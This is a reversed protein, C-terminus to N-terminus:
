FSRNVVGAALVLNPKIFSVHLMSQSNTTFTRPVIAHPAFVSEDTVDLVCVQNSGVALSLFTGDPSWSMSHVEGELKVQKLMRETNTDFLLLEGKSTAAAVFRGSPDAAVRDVPQICSFQRAASANGTVLDFMRVNGDASGTFLYHLNPHWALCDVDALHNTFTRLATPHEVSFLKATGDRHGSCFYYGVPAFEVCWAFKSAYTFVNRLQGPHTNNQLWYRIGGDSSCTLLRNSGLLSLDFVPQSHGVLRQSTSGSATWVRVSGDEFGAAVNRGQDSSAFSIMGEAHAFDMMAISPYTRPTGGNHGEGGQNNNTSTPLAVSPPLVKDLNKWYSSQLDPMHQEGAVVIDEVLVSSRIRKPVGLRVRPLAVPQPNTTIPIGDGGQGLVACHENVVGLMELRGQLLFQMLLQRVTGDLQVKTQERGMSQHYPALLEGLAQQHTHAHVGHYQAYFEDATGLGGGGRQRLLLFTQCFCVFLVQLLQSQFEPLSKLTWNELEQYQRVLSSPEVPQQQQQQPHAHSASSPQSSPIPSQQQSSPPPSSLAPTTATTPPPSGGAVATQKMLMKRRELVSSM